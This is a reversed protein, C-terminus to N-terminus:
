STIATQYAGVKNQLVRKWKSGRKPESQRRPRAGVANDDLHLFDMHERRANGRCFVSPENVLEITVRAQSASRTSLCAKTTLGRDM